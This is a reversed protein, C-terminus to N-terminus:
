KHNSHPQPPMLSVIGVAHAPTPACMHECKTNFPVCKYVGTEDFLKRQPLCLTTTDQVDGECYPSLSRGQPTPCSKKEHMRGTVVDVPLLLQSKTKARLSLVKFICRQKAKLFFFIIKTEKPPFFFIENRNKEM